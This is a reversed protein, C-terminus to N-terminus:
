AQRPELAGRTRVFQELNGGDLFESIQFPRGRPLADRAREPRGRRPLRFRLHPPHEPAAAQLPRAGRQPLALLVGPLAEEGRREGAREVVRRLLKVCVVRDLRADMARYITAMGGGAIRDLITYRDLLVMGESLDLLDYSFGM